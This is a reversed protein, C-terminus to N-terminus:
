RTWIVVLGCTNRTSNYEAPMVAGGAYYELGAMEEPKISNIDFPPQGNGNYVFIGDVMVAALCMGNGGTLLFSATPRSTGVYWVQGMGPPRILKLGPISRLADSTLHNEIKALQERTLFHGFGAARRRDFEALKGTLPAPARTLVSPLTQAVPDLLITVSVTDVDSVKVTLMKSQYGIKRIQLVTAGPELFALSIAGSASTLAKTHTALDVVEAGVVPEGTANDFVGLIRGLPQKAQANLSLPLVGAAFMLYAVSRM